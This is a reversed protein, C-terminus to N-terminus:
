GSIRSLTQQSQPGQQFEMAFRENSRDIRKIYETTWNWSQSGFLYNTILIGPYVDTGGSPVTSYCLDVRQILDKAFASCGRLWCHLDSDTNGEEMMSNGKVENEGLYYLCSYLRYPIDLGRLTPCQQRWYQLWLGFTPLDLIYGRPMKSDIEFVDQPFALIIPTMACDCCKWYGGPIGLEKAERPDLRRLPISIEANGIYTDESEFPRSEKNFHGRGATNLTFSQRAAPNANSSSMHTSYVGYYTPNDFGHDEDQVSESYLDDDSPLNEPPDWLDDSQEYLRLQQQQYYSDPAM